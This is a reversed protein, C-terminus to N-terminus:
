TAGGGAPPQHARRFRSYWTRLTNSKRGTRRACESWSLKRKESYPPERWGQVRRMLAEDYERARGRPRPTLLERLDRAVGLAGAIDPPAAELLTVIRAALDVPRSPAPEVNAPPTPAGPDFADELVDEDNWSFARRVAPEGTVPQPTPAEPDESGLRDVNSKPSALFGRCIHVETGRDTHRETTCEGNAGDHESLPRGCRPKSCPTTPDM